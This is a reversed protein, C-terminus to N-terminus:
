RNRETNINGIIMRANSIKMTSVSIVLPKDVELGVM